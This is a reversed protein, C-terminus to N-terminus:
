SAGGLREIVVDPVFTLDGANLTICCDGPRLTEVLWDATVDLDGLFRTDADPHAGAVADHVLRGSVGEIPTEGAAYLETIGLVDADVFADAFTPALDRTRTYRHPQFVCVVRDFPGSRAATLAAAVETPLHDYSDVFTM